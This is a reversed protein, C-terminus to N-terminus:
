ANNVGANRLTLLTRLGILLLVLASLMVVWEGWRVYLTQVESLGVKAKFAAREGRPFRESVRGLSDIVATIGDNGARAIYRRTEIARVRGMQFHQEAGGSQGFWADNSINVLLNAGSRAMNRAIRPFTSEYCIYAGARIGGLDLSQLSDGPVASILGPLGIAAFIPDYIFALAQRLPFTEGFPVLIAKDYRGTITESFSYVSNQYIGGDFSPAGVIVPKELSQLARFARVDTPPLPSAGEPWIVLDIEEPSNALGELSLNSYLELENLTRVSAKDLPNVSGQVLLVNRDAVPAEPINLGYIYAFVLLAAMLLSPWWHRQRLAALAAASGGVLLSVLAVGGLDAVQILPTPLFAYGLSGWTFGFVGFNRLYEMIVWAFPLTLLTYRGALRSLAATIGWFSGLLFPILLIPFVIVPGFLEAFSVPLWFLHVAFFGVGAAFALRFASRPGPAAAILGFVWALPLPALFSWPFPLFLLALAIGAVLAQFLGYRNQSLETGIATPLDNIKSVSPMNM